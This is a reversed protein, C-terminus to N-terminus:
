EKRHLVNQKINAKIKININSANTFLLKKLFLKFNKIIQQSLKRKRNNKRKRLLKQYQNVEKILKSLKVTNSLHIKNWIKERNNVQLILNIKPIIQGRFKDNLKSDKSFIM